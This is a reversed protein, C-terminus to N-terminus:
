VMVFIDGLSTVVKEHVERKKKERGKKERGKKERKGKKKEFPLVCHFPFALPAYM